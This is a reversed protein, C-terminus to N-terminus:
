FREDELETQAGYLGDIPGRNYGLYTLLLQLQRVTM